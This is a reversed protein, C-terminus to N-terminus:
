GLDTSIISLVHRLVLLRQLLRLSIMMSRLEWSSQSRSPRQMLFTALTLLNSEQPPRLAM